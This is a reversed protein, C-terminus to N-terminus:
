INNEHDMTKKNQSISFSRVILNIVDLKIVYADIIANMVREDDPNLSLENYLQKNNDDMSLLEAFISDLQQPETYPLTRLQEIGNDIQSTFYKSAEKFEIVSPNLAYQVEHKYNLYYYIWLIAVSMIFFAIFSAAYKIIQWRNKKAQKDHLADLKQFFVTEHNMGPVASDFVPRHEILTKEIDNWEIM